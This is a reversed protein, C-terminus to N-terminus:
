DSYRPQSCLMKCSKMNVDGDGESVGDDESDGYVERRIERESAIEM